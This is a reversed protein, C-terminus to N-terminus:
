IKNSKEEEMIILREMSKRKSFKTKKSYILSQEFFVWFDFKEWIRHISLRGYKEQLNQSEIVGIAIDEFLRVAKRPNVSM